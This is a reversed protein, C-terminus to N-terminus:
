NNPCLRCLGGNLPFPLVGWNSPLSVDQEHHRIGMWEPGKDPILQGGKVKWDGRVGGWGRPGYYKVIVIDAVETKKDPVIPVNINTDVCLSLFLHVHAFKLM